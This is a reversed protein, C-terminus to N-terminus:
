RNRRRGLSIALVAIVVAALLGGLLLVLVLL